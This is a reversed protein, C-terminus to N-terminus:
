HIVSFALVPSMVPFVPALFFVERSAARPQVTAKLLTKLGDAVPQFLGYPGVRNPGYRNQIRGLGKRELITTLAFLAPFVILLAAITLLASSLPQWFPPVWNLLGHKLYVPLQDLDHFFGQDM